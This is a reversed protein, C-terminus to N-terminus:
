SFRPWPPTRQGQDVRRLHVLVQDGADGTDGTTVQSLPEMAKFRAGGEHAVSFARGPEGVLVAQSMGVRGRDHVLVLHLAEGPQVANSAEISRSSARSNM